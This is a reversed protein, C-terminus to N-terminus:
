KIHHTDFANFLIGVLQSNIQKLYFCKKNSIM